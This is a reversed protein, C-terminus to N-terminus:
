RCRCHRSEGCYEKILFYLGAAETAGVKMKKSIHRVGGGMGTDFLPIVLRTVGDIRLPRGGPIILGFPGTDTETMREPFFVTLFHLMGVGMLGYGDHWTFALERLTRHENYCRAQMAVALEDASLFVRRFL